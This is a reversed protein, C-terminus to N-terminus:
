CCGMVWEGQEGAVRWCEWFGAPDSVAQDGWQQGTGWIATESGRDVGQPHAGLVGVPLLGCEWSSALSGWGVAHSRVVGWCYQQWDLSQQQALPPVRNLHGSPSLRALFGALRLWLMMWRLLVDVCLPAAATQDCPCAWHGEAERVMCRPLTQTQALGPGWAAPGHSAVGALKRPLEQELQEHLQMAALPVEAPQWGECDALPRAWAASQDAVALGGCSM